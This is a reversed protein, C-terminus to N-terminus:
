FPNPYNQYLKFENPPSRNDRVSVVADPYILRLNDFYITGNYIQNHVRESGLILAINKIHLPFHFTANETLVIPNDFTAFLTDFVNQSEAKANMLLAFEEDKINTVIFAVTHSQDDSMIDISINDPIGFIPFEKNLYAWNSEGNQYTFSYNFQLSNNDLTFYLPSLSINSEVTDINKGKLTWGDLEEFSDLLQIGTGLEIKVEATDSVNRWKVIVETEGSQKGVFVGISDITGISEDTVNWEYESNKLKIEYGNLDFSKVKFLISTSTDTVGVKPSIEVKVISNVVIFSSDIFSQYEAIVFGSDSESGATFLGDSTISGIDNTVSYIVETENIQISNFHDDFGDASFQYISDSFVKAFETNLRIQSLEGKSATSVAFLANSVSREGSADSPSNAVQNRVVMATSGGGDLNLGRHVGIGVMFDALEPLSMGKSTSQRGDVTIFFLYNGNESIGAATRPHRATAFSNSGGEEAFCDLACNIGDSVIKPYGGVVTITNKLANQLDHIIIITDGVSINEDIFTKSAGHGSLIAKGVTIQNNGVSNTKNTVVCYVSDNVLWDKLPQVVVESGYINTSTSSGFYSNYLIMQDTDRAKNVGHIMKSSNKTIVESQLSLREIFPTYSEDFGITSWNNPPTIVEGESVQIGVPRGNYNFFDANIGGIVYHSDIDYRSSMASTRELGAIVDNAMVSEIKIDTSNLNIKLVNLTWPVNKEEIYIHHVGKGVERVFLTDFQNQALLNSINSILFFILLLKIVTSNKIM